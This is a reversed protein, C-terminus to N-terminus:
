DSVEDLYSYMKLDERMKQSNILDVSLVEDDARLDSIVEAQNALYRDALYIGSSTLLVTLALASVMIIFVKKPKTM